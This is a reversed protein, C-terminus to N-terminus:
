TLNSDTVISFIATFVDWWRTPLEKPLINNEIGKSIYARQVSETMYVASPEFNPYSTELM